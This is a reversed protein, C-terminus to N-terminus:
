GIKEIKGYASEWPIRKEKKIEALTRPNWYLDLEVDHAVLEGINIYGMEANQTDGNLIALGFAQEQEDSGDREVIYWDSGGIFYHLHVIAADGQGDTEYTAPMTEMTWVVERMKKKFWAAEEGRLESKIALMEGRPIWCGLNNVKREM